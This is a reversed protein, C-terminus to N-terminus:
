PRATVLAGTEDLDVVANVALDRHEHVEGSPWRVELRDVRTADGLGFHLRPDGSSLFGSGATRVKFWTSEGAEVTVHAGVADRSSRTGTLGVRLWNGHRGDNRHVSVPEDVGTVVLDLDGDDDFDALAAARASRARGLGRVAAQEEFRGDGRSRYLRSPQRYRVPGGEDDVQPYIHGDLILLDDWGDHDFDFWHAAWALYIMSTEGLGAAFSVDTFTWDGNAQYLTDYDESFNTVVVDIDGDRDYDAADIGMGAQPQGMQGYAAGALQATEEFRGDRNRYLCNRVSDNAVYLDIWGDRDFDTFVLGLAYYRERAIGFEADARRFRGDGLNHYFVDPEGDLGKPGCPIPVGGRSCDRTLGRDLPEGHYPPSVPAIDLYNTVYLDALGDKDVDAFAASASWREGEIGASRSVDAFVGGDNRYLLNRGFNTVLLDPWGDNNWDAVACGQGYGTQGLGSTATVDEFRGGGLNRFLRDPEGPRGGVLSGHDAANVVYVDLRGDRDADLACAGTGMVELLTEKVDSGGLVTTM